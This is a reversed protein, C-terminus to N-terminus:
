GRMGGVLDWGGSGQWEDRAQLYLKASIGTNAGIELWLSSVSQRRALSTSTGGPDMTSAPVAWAERERRVVGRGYRKM